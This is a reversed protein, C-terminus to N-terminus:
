ASFAVGGQARQADSELRSFSLRAPVRPRPLTGEVEHNNGARNGTYGSSGPCSQERNTAMGGSRVAKTM